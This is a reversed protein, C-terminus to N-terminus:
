EKDNLGTSGFGGAGRDTSELNDVEEPQALSIRELILQAIRDGDKVIFPERSLNAIAIKVEGTYDEDVVGAMVHIGNKVALGSRPAIRVYTEAPPRVSIQTPILAVIKPLEPAEQGQPYNGIEDADIQASDDGAAIGPIVITEGEELCAYVDLGAALESGRRPMTARESLRKVLLKETM